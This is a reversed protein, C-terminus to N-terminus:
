ATGSRMGLGFYGHDAGPLYQGSTMALPHHTPSVPGSCSGPYPSYLPRAHPSVPASLSGFVGPVALSSMTGPACGPSDPGFQPWCGREASGRFTAPIPPHNHDGMAEAPPLRVRPALHPTPSACAGFGLRADFQFALQLDADSYATSPQWGNGPHDSGSAARMTGPVSLYTPMPSLTDPDVQGWANSSSVAAAPPPSTAPYSGPSHEEAVPFYGDVRQPPPAGRPLCEPPAVLASSSGAAWDQWDHYSVQLPDPMPRYPYSGPPSADILALLQAIQRVDAEMDFSAFDFDFDCQSSPEPGPLTDPDLLDLLSSDLSSRAGGAGYPAAPISPSSSSSGTSSSLSPSTPIISSPSSPSPSLPPSARESPPTNPSSSPTEPQRSAAKAKTEEPDNLFVCHRGRHTCRSCPWQMNCKIKSEACAECSKRRSRPVKRGCNRKHRTLLDSRTFEAVQCIQLQGHTARVRLSPPPGYHSYSPTSEPPHDPHVEGPLSYLM